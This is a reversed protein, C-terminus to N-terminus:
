RGDESMLEQVLETEASANEDRVLFKNGEADEDVRWVHGNSAEYVGQGHYVAEHLSSAAKELPIRNSVETPTTSATKTMAPESFKGETPVGNKALEALVRETHPASSGVRASLSERKRIM